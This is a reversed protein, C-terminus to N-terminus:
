TEVNLLFSEVYRWVLDLHGNLDHDADVEVLQVRNPYEAAYARSHDTPVTSDRDGHIIFLPAPPPIFELYRLGDLHLDYRVPLEEEFAPHYVPVEGAGEWHLLEAESLGGSLWRLGPALLLMKAVGGFRHAYHLAILGGYSSGIIYLPGLNRDLVYQRLRSILGTTTVYRFDTPTPTLDIAHFAVQPRAKFRQRLYQAKTSRASSAFGHLFLITRAEASM